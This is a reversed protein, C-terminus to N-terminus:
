SPLRRFIEAIRERNNGTRYGAGAAGHIWEFQQM